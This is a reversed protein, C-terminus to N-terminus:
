WRDSRQENGWDGRGWGRFQSGDVTSGERFEFTRERGDPGRTHIRLAKRRGPEPDVGFTSNGMVFSRDQRALEKLRDTVDVHRHQTGYHASLIVYEGTDRNEGRNNDGRNDNGGEWRGSWRATGWDGRGWGRFQSGDVLSRERYEFMREGGDPGRAYIRLAKVRGYDPDVGFTNNGMLFTRDQRALEKLRNTVDVHNRDTGYQASLIVYEGSDRNDGRNYDRNDDRRDGSNDGGQDGGGEWRGSWRERGWDGEGWGRFQSGDVPTGERYEFMRERGDPGRAYIRLVKVRGYDPDVGFTDNGMLFTRDQRALQKLRDTVDVHNRETGYQASLIVYDDAERDGGGGDGGEWRGSWAERGWDGRGWGRFQSGDVTSGERFEFMHERGDAGRAYIRLAKVRGPDPDIGFARNGMRFILDRRAFEKLRDTVDVHHWETGYQASLIVYQGSDRSYQAELTRPLFAVTLLLSIALRIHLM